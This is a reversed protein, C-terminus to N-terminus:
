KGLRAVSRGGTRGVQAECAFTLEKVIALRCKGPTAIFLHLWGVAGSHSLSSAEWLGSCCM